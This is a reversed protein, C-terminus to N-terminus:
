MGVMGCRNKIGMTKGLNAEPHWTFQFFFVKRRRHTNRMNSQKCIEQFEFSNSIKGTIHRSYLCVKKEGWLHTLKRFMISHATKGQRNLDRQDISEETVSM